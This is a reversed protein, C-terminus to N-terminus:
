GASERQLRRADPHAYRIRCPLAKYDLTWDQSVDLLALIAWHPYGM